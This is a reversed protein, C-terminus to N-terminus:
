AGIAITMGPLCDRKGVVEMLQRRQRCEAKRGAGERKANRQRRAAGPSTLV